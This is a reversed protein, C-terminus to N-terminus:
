SSRMHTDPRIGWRAVSQTFAPRLVTSVRTDTCSIAYAPLSPKYIYETNPSETHPQSNSSSNSSSQFHIHSSSGYISQSSTSTAASPRQWGTAHATFRSEASVTGDQGSRGQEEMVVDGDADIASLSGEDDESFREEEDEDVESDSLSSNTAPPSMLAHHQGLPGPLPRPGPPYLSGHPYADFMSSMDGGDSLRGAGGRSHNRWHRRMNSNVNFERGCGPYPCRYAFASLAMNKALYSVTRSWFAGLLSTIHFSIFTYTRKAGTHTNVHIKMSSPRNFRKGCHPCQHKKGRGEGSLSTTIVESSRLYSRRGDHSMITSASSPPDSVSFSLMSSHPSRMHLPLDPERTTTPSSPNRTSRMAPQVALKHRQSSRQAVPAMAVRFAPASGNTVGAQSTPSNTTSGRHRLTTSSAVHELSATIPDARLVNFSYSPPCKPSNLHRSPQQSLSDYHSQQHITSESSTPPSSPPAQSHCFSIATNPYRADSPEGTRACSPSIPHAVVPEQSLVYGSEHSSRCSPFSLFGVSPNVSTARHKHPTYLSNSPMSMELTLYIESDAGTCCHLRDTLYVGPFIDRISPLPVTPRAM